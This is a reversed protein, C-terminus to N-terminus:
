RRSIRYYGRPFHTGDVASHIRVEVFEEGVALETVCGKSWSPDLLGEEGELSTTVVSGCDIYINGSSEDFEVSGGATNPSMHTHGSLFIVNGYEDALKQIEKNRDLYPNGENRNPNHALLPAHCLLLHWDAERHEGLHKRLWEVQRGEPFLFKRGSIVCQLGVVDLNGVQLSWELGDSSAEVALGELAERQMLWSQFAAYHETGDSSGAKSPHVCDHNGIVSLVAKESAASQISEKLDEYQEKMGDNASDGLFFIRDSEALELATTIRRPKAAMHLDTLFSFRLLPEPAEKAPLFREPIPESVFEEKQFDSSICRAVVTTAGAPIARWGDFVFLGNGYPDIPVYAFSSWDPLRGEENGWFLIAILFGKARITYRGQASGPRKLYMQLKM